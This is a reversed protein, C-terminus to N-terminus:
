PKVRLTGDPAVYRTGSALKSYEKEDTPKAVRGSRVERDIVLSQHMSAAQQAQGRIAEAQSKLRAIEGQATPDTAALPNASLTAVKMDLADAATTYRTAMVGAENIRSQERHEVRDKDKSEQDMQAIQLSTAKNSAAIGSANARDLAKQKMEAAHAYLKMGNDLQKEDRNARAITIQNEAQRLATEALRMEKSAENWYKVGAQAGQGINVAAWPSTGGMIGLGATLLAMGKDGELGKDLKARDQANRGEMEGFRDPAQLDRVQNIYDALGEGGINLSGGM